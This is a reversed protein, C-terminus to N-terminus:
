SAPWAPLMHVDDHHELHEAVQAAQKCLAAAHISQEMGQTQKM